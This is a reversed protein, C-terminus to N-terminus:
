KYKKITTKLTKLESKLHKVKDKYKKINKKNYSIDRKINSISEKEAEKLTFVSFFMRGKEDLIHESETLRNYKNLRVIEKINIKEINYDIIVYKRKYISSDLSDEVKM